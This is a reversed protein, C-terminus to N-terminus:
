RQSGPSSESTQPRPLSVHWNFITSCSSLLYVRKELRHERMAAEAELVTDGGTLRQDVGFSCAVRFDFDVESTRIRGHEHRATALQQECQLMQRRLRQAKFEVLMVEDGEVALVKLRQALLLERHGGLNGHLLDALGVHRIFERRHTRAFAAHDM